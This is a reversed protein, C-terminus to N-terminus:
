KAKLGGKKKKVCKGNIEEYGKGCKSSGAKRRLDGTDLKSNDKVGLDKTTFVDAM